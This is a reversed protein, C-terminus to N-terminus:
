QERPSGDELLSLSATGSGALAWTQPSTLRGFFSHARAKGDTRPQPGAGRFSQSWGLDSLVGGLTRVPRQCGLSAGM